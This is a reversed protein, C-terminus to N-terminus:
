LLKEANIENLDRMTLSEQFRRLPKNSNKIRLDRKRRLIPIALKPKVKFIKNVTIKKKDVTALIFADIQEYKRLVEDSIDQFGWSNGSYVKYEFENNNQDFADHAGARGGQESNINHDLEIAVIQEWIKNSTLLNKVNTLRELSEAFTFIENLEKKYPGSEFSNKEVQKWLLNERESLQKASLNIMKRKNLIKKTERTLYQSIQFGSGEIYKDFYPPFEDDNLHAFIVSKTQKLKEITTESFDNFTWSHNSSNKKYHKYEYINGLYDQADRSGSHGPIMKHNLSNAIIVETFKSNSWLDDINFKQYFLKQIRRMEELLHYFKAKDIKKFEPMPRIHQSKNFYNIHYSPM